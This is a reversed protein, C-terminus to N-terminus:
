RSPLDAAVELIFYPAAGLCLPPGVGSVPAVTSTAGYGWSSANAQRGSVVTHHLQAAGM